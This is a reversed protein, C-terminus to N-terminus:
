PTEEEDEDDASLFFEGDHWHFHYGEPAVNENLWNEVEDSADFLSEAESDTLDSAGAGMSALHRNALDIVEADKYGFVSATIVLRATGYQGWHGDIWCGANQATVRTPEHITADM